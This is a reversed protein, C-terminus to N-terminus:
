IVKPQQFTVRSIRNSLLISGNQSYSIRLCASSFVAGNIVPMNKMNIISNLHGVKPTIETM